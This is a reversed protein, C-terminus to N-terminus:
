TGAKATRQAILFQRADIKKADFADDAAKELAKFKAAEELTDFDAQQAKVWLDVVGANDPLVQAFTDGKDTVFKTEGNSTDISVIRVRVLYATRNSSTGEHRKFRKVVFAKDKTEPDGYSWWPVLATFPEFSTLNLKDIQNKIADLSAGRLLKGPAQAVFNAGDDRGNFNIVVGLYTWSTTPAKGETNTKKM